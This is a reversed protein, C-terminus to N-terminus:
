DNTTNTAHRYNMRLINPFIKVSLALQIVFAYGYLCTLDYSLQATKPLKHKCKPFQHILTKASTLKGFSIIRSLLILCVAVDVYSSCM